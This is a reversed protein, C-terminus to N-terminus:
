QQRMRPMGGAEPGPGGMGGPGGPGGPGPMRMPGGAIGNLVGLLGQTGFRQTLANFQAPNTKLIALIQIKLAAADRLHTATEATAANVITQAAAQAAALDGALIADDYAHHADRIANNPEPKHADRFNQVLTKLQEEQAASLDPANAEKLAQKIPMLPDFEQRMKTQANVFLLAGAIVCALLSYIITLNIKKM